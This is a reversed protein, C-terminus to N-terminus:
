PERSPDPASETSEPRAFMKPDVSDLCEFEEIVARRWVEGDRIVTITGAILIGNVKRFDSYRIEKDDPFPTSAVFRRQSDFRLLGSTFGCSTGGSYRVTVADREGEGDLSVLDLRLGGDRVLLLRRLAGLVYEDAVPAIEDAYNCVRGNPHRIWGSQAACGATWEGRKGDLEMCMEQRACDPECFYEVVRITGLTWLSEEGKVTTRARWALVSQILDEGGHAEIARELIARAEAETESADTEV